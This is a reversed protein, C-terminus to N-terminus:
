KEESFLSLELDNYINNANTNNNVMKSSVSWKLKLYYVKM